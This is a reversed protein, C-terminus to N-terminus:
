APPAHQLTVTPLNLRHMTQLLSEPSAVLEYNPCLWVKELPLKAFPVLLVCLLASLCITVLMLRQQIATPVSTSLFAFGEYQM